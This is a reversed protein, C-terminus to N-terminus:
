EGIKVCGQLNLLVNAPQIDGHACKAHKHLYQLAMVIQKLISGTQSYQEWHEVIWINMDIHLSQQLSIEMDEYILSLISGNWFAAYLEAINDHMPRKLFRMQRSLDMPEQKVVVLTKACLSRKELRCRFSVGLHDRGQNKVVEINKCHRWVDDHVITIHHPTDYTPEM